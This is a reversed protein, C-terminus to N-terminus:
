RCAQAHTDALGQNQAAQMSLPVDVESSASVHVLVMGTGNLLEPEAWLPGRSRLMRPERSSTVLSVSLASSGTQAGAETPWM